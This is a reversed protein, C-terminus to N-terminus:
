KKLYERFLKRAEENDPDLKRIIEIEARGEDARGAELDIRAVILHM